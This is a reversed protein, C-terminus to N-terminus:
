EFDSQMFDSWEDEDVDVDDEIRRYGSLADAFTRYSNYINTFTYPTYYSYYSYGYTGTNTVTSTTTATPIATTIPM